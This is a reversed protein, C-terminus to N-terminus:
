FIQWAQRLKAAVSFSRDEPKAEAWKFSCSLQGLASQYRESHIHSATEVTTPLSLVLRPGATRKAGGNRQRFRPATTVRQHTKGGPGRHKSSVLPIALFRGTM